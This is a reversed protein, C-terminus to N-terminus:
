ALHEALFALTRERALAASQKDFDARADCNFGHGAPYVHVEVEPHLECIDAVQVAPIHPDREGFHLLVPCAPKEKRHEHIQGGYYGVAAAVELRCAALWALSGGWCYGVVAVKGAERVADAAAAVDAVARDWALVARLERGSAVGEATYDLEIGPRVRDFLAPAVALYGDGAYGDAVARIHHNIGFIEQCVVLGGRLRGAPRAVYADLEHGDAAALKLTEGM